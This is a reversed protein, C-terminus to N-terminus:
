SWLHMITAVVSCTILVLFSSHRNSCLFTTTSVILHQTTTFVSCIAIFLTGHDRGYQVKAAYDERGYVVTTKRRSFNADFAHFIPHKVSIFALM